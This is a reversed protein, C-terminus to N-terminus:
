PTSTTARFNQVLEDSRDRGAPSGDNWRFPDGRNTTGLITGGLHTIGRVEKAGLPLLEEEGLLSGYGRRIGFCEWGRNLAGLVAGRIM